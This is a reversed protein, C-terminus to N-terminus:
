LQVGRHVRRAVDRAAVYAVSANGGDLLRFLGRMVQPSQNELDRWEDTRSFSIKEISEGRSELWEPLWSEGRAREASRAVISRILHANDAGFCPM